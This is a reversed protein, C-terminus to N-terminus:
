RAGGSAVPGPLYSDPSRRPVPSDIPQGSAVREVLALFRPLIVPWDYSRRVLERADDSLRARLAPDSLLRLTASAFEAPSDAILLHDGSRVDLGEAGKSTAIVPTGLAMSELIKLRTGGGTQLPALSAWASAIAPRVDPLMGVLDVGRSYPLSLGAHNGTITLRVGPREAHIRPLVESTFWRMAQYNVDYTFSGAFMLQDPRPAASVATCDALSVGNPIVAVPLYAPAMQRLLTEEQHSAVTSAGFRPLLAEFYRRM